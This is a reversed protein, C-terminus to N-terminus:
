WSSDGARLEPRARSTAGPHTARAPNRQAPRTGSRSSSTRPTWRRPRMRCPNGHRAARRRSPGSDGIHGSPPDRPVCRRRSYRTGPATERSRHRTREQVRDPVSGSPRGSCSAGHRSRARWTPPPSAEQRERFTEARDDRVPRHYRNRQVPAPVPLAPEILGLDQGLPDGRPQTRRETPGQLANCGCLRQRPQRAGLARLDDSPGEHAPSIRGEHTSRDQQDVIDHGCPGGAARRGPGQLPGARPPHHRKDHGSRLTERSHRCDPGECQCWPCDGPASAPRRPPRDGARCCGPRATSSM